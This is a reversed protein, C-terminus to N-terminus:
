KTEELVLKADKEDYVQGNYEKILYQIEEKTKCYNEYSVDFATGTEINVLYYYGAEEPKFLLYYEPQVTKKGKCNVRLEVISGAKIKNKFAIRHELKM